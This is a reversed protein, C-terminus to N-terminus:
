ALASCRSDTQPITPWISDYESRGLQYREFEDTLRCIYILVFGDM